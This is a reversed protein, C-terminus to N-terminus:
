GVAAFFKALQERLMHEPDERSWQQLAPLADVARTGLKILVDLFAWANKSVKIEPMRGLMARVFRPPDIEAIALVGARPRPDGPGGADLQKAIAAAVAREFRADPDARVFAALAQWQEPWIDYSWKREIEAILKDYIRDDDTFATLLAHDRPRPDSADWHYGGGAIREAIPTAWARVDPFAALLARARAIDLVLVPEFVISLADGAVLARRYLPLAEALPVFTLLAVLHRTRWPGAAVRAEIWTRLAGDRWRALVDARAAPTALQPWSEALLDGVIRGEPVHRDFALLFNIVVDAPGFLSANQALVYSAASQLAAPTGRELIQMALAVVPLGLSAARHFLKADEDREIRAVLADIAAEGARAFVDTTREWLAINSGRPSLGDYYPNDEWWTEDSGLADILADTLAASREGAAVRDALENWLAEPNM